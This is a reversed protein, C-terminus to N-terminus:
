RPCFTPPNLPAALVVVLAAQVVKSKFGWSLCSVQCRQPYLLILFQGDVDNFIGGIIITHRQSAGSPMLDSADEEEAGLVLSIQRLGEKM